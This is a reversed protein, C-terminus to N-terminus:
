SEKQEMMQSRVERIEQVIEDKADEAIALYKEAKMWESFATTNSNDPWPTHYYLFGKSMAYRVVRQYLEPLFEPDWKKFLFARQLKMRHREQEWMRLQMIVNEPIFPKNDKGRREHLSPHAHTNLFRIIQEATIGTKYAALVSERTLLGVVLNPTRSQLDCLHALISVQLTSGTYVYVKFNSQVIIGAELSAGSDAKESVAQDNLTGEARGTSVNGSGSQSDSGIPIVSGGGSERLQLSPHIYQERISLPKSAVISTGEKRKSSHNAVSSLAATLHSTEASTFGLLLSYPAAFFYPSSGREKWVLGLDAAVALFRRQSGGLVSTYFAQGITSQSLTLIMVLAAQVAAIAAQKLEESNEIPPRVQSKRSGRAKAEQASYTLFGDDLIMLFEVVVSCIQSQLDKLLWSFAERSMGRGKAALNQSVLNRRGLILVVDECPREPLDEDTKSATQYGSSVTSASDDNGASKANSDSMMWRLLSDWRRRSYQHLEQHSPIRIGSFGGASRSLLTCGSLSFGRLIMNQLTLQLEQQLLYQAVEQSSKAAKEADQSKLYVVNRSRLSTIAKKVLAEHNPQMWLRLLRESVPLRMFVLRMVIIQELESLSKYVATVVSNDRYLMGWVEASLGSMYECLDSVDSVSKHTPVASATLKGGHQSPRAAPNRQGSAAKSNDACSGKTSSYKASASSSDSPNM